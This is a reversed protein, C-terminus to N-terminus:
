FHFSGKPLPLPMEGRSKTKFTHDPVQGCLAPHYETTYKATPLDEFLDKLCTLSFPPPGKNGTGTM